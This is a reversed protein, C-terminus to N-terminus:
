SIYICLIVSIYTYVFSVYLYIAKALLFRFHVVEYVIDYYIGFLRDIRTPSAVIVAIARGAGIKTACFFYMMEHSLKM